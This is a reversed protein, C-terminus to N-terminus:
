IFITASYSIVLIITFFSIPIKIINVFYLEQWHRSSPLGSSSTYSKNYKWERVVTDITNILFSIYGKINM